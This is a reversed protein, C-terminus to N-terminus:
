APLRAAHRRVLVSQAVGVLGSAFAYIAVGAAVRWLLVATFVVPIVIAASRNPSPPTPGLLVALGTLVACGSALLLDPKTLDAIWLFRKAGGLGRRVASFLGIFLPAQVLSGLLAQGDVLNIGHERYLKGTEMLVRQPDGKYRARIKAVQPEVRAIAARTELSRYALRLTLPLLALRATLSVLGIALGLNGGFFGAVGVLLASLVDVFADWWLM